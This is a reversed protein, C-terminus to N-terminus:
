IAYFCVDIHKNQSEMVPNSAMFISGQNNGNIHIPGLRYGLELLISRVWVCQWSCNSLAMYKAETSSMAMTKQARLTWSFTGGTIM